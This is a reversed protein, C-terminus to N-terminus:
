PRDSNHVLTNQHVCCLKWGLEEIGSIKPVYLYMSHLIIDMKLLQNIGCLIFVCLMVVASVGAACFIVKGEDHRVVNILHIVAQLM